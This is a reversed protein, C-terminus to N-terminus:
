YNTIPLVTKFTLQKDLMLIVVFHDRFQGSVNKRSLRGYVADFLILKNYFCNQFFCQFFTNVHM